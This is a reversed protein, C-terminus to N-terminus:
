AENIINNLQYEVSTKENIASIVKAIAPACSIVKINSPLAVGNSNLQKLPITDTIYLNKLKSGGINEYAKGSLVGHTICASVEQAGKELLLETAKALSGATDIMDDVILVKKGSVDGVLEMSGISNPKDRRKNIVNLNLKLFDAFGKARTVGGADPSCIVWSDDIIAKLYPLFVDKGQIHIVPSDHNFFGEIQNAHLDITILSDMGNAKLANAIVRAGIASRSQGRRDQRAYPYYPVVLHAKYAGARKAADLTLLMEVFNDHPQHLSGVIYVAHGRVSEQFFPSLEGDSFTELGIQGTKLGIQNTIKDGLEKSQSLTFIKYSM